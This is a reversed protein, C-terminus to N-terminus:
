VKVAGVLPIRDLLPKMAIRVRGKFWLNGVGVRMELLKSIAAGIGAGIPIRPFPRMMLQFKQAGNWLCELELGVEDIVSDTSFVQADGALVRQDLFSYCATRWDKALKPSM